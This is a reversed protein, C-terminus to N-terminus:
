LQDDCARVPSQHRRRGSGHIDLFRVKPSDRFEAISKKKEWMSMGGRIVRPAARGMLRRWATRRSLRSNGSYETFVLLPQDPSDESSVSEVSRRYLENQKADGPVDM